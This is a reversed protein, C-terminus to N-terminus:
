GNERVKLYAPRAMCRQLWALTLPSSQMLAAAPRAWNLVSAVCLDAVTFRDAALHALGAAASMC